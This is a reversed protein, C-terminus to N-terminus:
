LPLDYISSVSFSIRKQVIKIAKQRAESRDRAVVDAEMIGINYRKGGLREKVNLTVRYPKKMKKGM